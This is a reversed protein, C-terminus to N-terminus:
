SATRLRPLRPNEAKNERVVYVAQCRVLEVVPLARLTRSKHMTRRVARTWLVVFGVFIDSLVRVVNKTFM